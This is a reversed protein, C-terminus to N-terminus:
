PLAEGAADQRGPVHAAEGRRVARAREPDYRGTDPHERTFAPWNEELWARAERRITALHEPEEFDMVRNFFVAGELQAQLLLWDIRDDKNWNTSPVAKVKALVEKVHLRRALLASLSYDTLRKDWTHLGADSSAVPYNENRWNYYDQAFQRLEGPTSPNQARTSNSCVFMLACASLFLILLKM